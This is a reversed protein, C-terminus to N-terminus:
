DSAKIMAAKLAAKDADSLEPRDVKITLKDLTATLTHEAVLYLIMMWFLLKIM